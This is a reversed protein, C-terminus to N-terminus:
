KEESCKKRAATAVVQSVGKSKALMRLDGKNIFKLWQLAVDIPTKSNFVLHKKVAYEKMWERNNAIGRLLYAALNHNKAYDEVENVTLRPNKLVTESIMRNHDLILVARCASNGLLAMKLKDAIGMKSIKNRVDTEGEKTMASMEVSRTVSPPLPIQDQGKLVESRGLFIEELEKTEDETLDLEKFLTRVSEDTM